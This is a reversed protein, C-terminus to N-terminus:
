GKAQGGLLERATAKASESPPDGSLMKAIEPVREEPSLLKVETTTRDAGTRKYVFYHSQAKAAVQPSHTIVVVQHEGALQQLMAGMRGAVDGSVGADIEDFVITPLPVAKAVLSKIVFSLRSLEGGSAAGKIEEPRSGRNAAFLFRLRDTGTPSLGQDPLLEVQLRAHEMAVQALREHVSAEFAPLVARRAESINNGLAILEAEQREIERELRVLHDGFGTIGRLKESVSAQLALLEDVGACHYKKQLKYLLNLRAQVEQIREPDHEVDEALGGCEGSLDKLEQLASELREQFVPIQPHFRAVQRLFQRVTELQGVVSRESETLAQHAAELQRKIEESNVLAAAETELSEQEGSVLEAQELEQLQYELFDKEQVSRANEERLRALEGQAARWKRYGDRYLKVRDQHGALADVVRTQFSAEHVDLTDFQQHLDLLAGSLKQVVELVAPTDNIFARSKGSPTIERRVVIEDDYDLDHEEFFERLDHGDLRFHGEVVCKEEANHLVRTDARRGMVLGLAGLIISKGAGTEGTITTLHDSFRLDLSEILAYNKIYLRSIM